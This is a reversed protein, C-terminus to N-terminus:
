NGGVPQTPAAPEKSLDLDSGKWKQKDHRPLGVSPEKSKRGLAVAMGVLLAVGATAGVAIGVIAGTSLTSSDSSKNDKAEGLAGTGSVLGSSSTAQVTPKEVSSTAEDTPVPPQNEQTSETTAQTEAVTSTESTAPTESTSDATSTTEAAASSIPSESSQVPTESTSTSTAADTSSSTVTSSAAATSTTSSTTTTTAATTTVTPVPITVPAIWTASQIQAASTIGSPNLASNQIYQGANNDFPIFPTLSSPTRQGVPNLPTGPPSALWRGLFQALAPGDAQDFPVQTFWLFEECGHWATVGGIIMPLPSWNSIRYGPYDAYYDSLFVPVAVGGSFLNTAPKVWLNQFNFYTQGLPINHDAAYQMGPISIGLRINPFLGGIPRPNDVGAVLDGRPFNFFWNFNTYGDQWNANADLLLNRVGYKLCYARLTKWQVDTMPRWGSRQADPWDIIFFDVPFTIFGRFNGVNGNELNDVVGASAMDRVQVNLGFQNMVATWRSILSAPSNQSSLILITPQTSFQISAAPAIRPARNKMDLGNNINYLRPYTNPNRVQAQAMLASLALLLIVAAKM